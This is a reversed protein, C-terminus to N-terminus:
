ILSLQEALKKEIFPIAQAPDRLHYWLSELIFEKSLDKLM